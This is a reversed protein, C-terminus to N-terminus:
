YQDLRSLQSYLFLVILLFSIIIIALYILNNFHLKLLSPLFILFYASFAIYLLSTWEKNKIFDLIFITFLTVSLLIPIVTSIPTSTLLMALSIISILFLSLVSILSISKTKLPAGGYLFFIGYIVM